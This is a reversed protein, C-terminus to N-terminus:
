TALRNAIDRLRPIQKELRLLTTLALDIQDSGIARQRADEVGVARGVNFLMWNVWAGLIANFAAEVMEAAISGGADVYAALFSAFPRADFHATIGSWDLAELLLEYTPNIPRASEWDILLPEGADSWLVNKHDLDGHSIVQHQALMPQATRQLEVVALIDALRAQLYDVDRVNRQQALQVLDTVRKATLPWTPLERLAPVQIDAGHMRALIGAVTVAHFDAIDNRGRAHWDTWPYVLYGAHGLVQLHQGRHALSALAPVGRSAFAQATVETANLRLATAADGMDMDDALQKIAFRGRETDLSWMRHHFGGAVAALEGPTEGLELLQCLQQIHEPQDPLPAIM